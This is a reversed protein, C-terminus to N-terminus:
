RANDAGETAQRRGELIGAQYADEVAKEHAKETKHEDIKDAFFLYALWFALATLLLGVLDGVLGLTGKFLWTMFELGLWGVVVAILLAVIVRWMKGIGGIIM